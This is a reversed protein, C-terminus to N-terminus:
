IAKNVLHDALRIRPDTRPLHVYSVKTFAKEAQKVKSLAEILGPEKVKYAGKLQNVMLQSDSHCVVESRTFAKAMELAKLMASYEAQNNTARGIYESCNALLDGQPTYILVGIAAPGPNGKSGGDTYVLVRDLKREM